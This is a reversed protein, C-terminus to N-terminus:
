SRRRQAVKGDRVSLDQADVSFNESSNPAFAPPRRPSQPSGAGDLHREAGLRAAMMPFSRPIQWLWGSAGSRRKFGGSRRPLNLESGQGVEVQEHVGHHDV